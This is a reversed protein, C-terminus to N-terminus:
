LLGVVFLLPWQGILASEMGAFYTSATALGHALARGLALWLTSSLAAAATHAGLLRFLDGASRPMQRGVYWGSLCVFAYVLALPIGLALSQLWPLGAGLALMAAILLAIPNWALLYLNLRGRSAVIPHVM